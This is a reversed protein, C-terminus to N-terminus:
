RYIIFVADAQADSTKLQVNISDMDESDQNDDLDLIIYIAKSSLEPMSVMFRYANPRQPNAPGMFVLDYNKDLGDIGMTLYVEYIKINDFSFDGMHNKDYDDLRNTVESTEVFSIDFRTIEYESFYIDDDEAMIFTDEVLAVTFLQTRSKYCSLLSFILFVFCIFRVKKM